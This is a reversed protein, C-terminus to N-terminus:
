ASITYHYNSREDWRDFGHVPPSFHMRIWRKELLKKLLLDVLGLLGYFNGVLCGDSSGLGIIRGTFYARFEAFVEMTVEKYICAQEVCFCLTIVDDENISTCSFGPLVQRLGLHFRVFVADEFAVLSSVGITESFGRRM